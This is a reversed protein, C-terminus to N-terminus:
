GTLALEKHEFSDNAGNWEHRHLLAVVHCVRGDDDVFPMALREYTFLRQLPASNLMVDAMTWQPCRDDIAQQYAAILSDKQQGINIQDMYRGTTEGGFLEVVGTGAFRVRLRYNEPECDLVVICPALRYVDMLDFAAYQPLANTRPLAATYEWFESIEPTDFMDFEITM